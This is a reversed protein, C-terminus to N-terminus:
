NKVGLSGTKFKVKFDDFCVNQTLNMIVPEFIHGKTNVLNEKTQGLSRTKSRFHGLKLSLRSIM